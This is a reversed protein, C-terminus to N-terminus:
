SVTRRSTKLEQTSVICPFILQVAGRGIAVAIM